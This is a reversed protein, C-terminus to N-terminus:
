RRSASEDVIKKQKRKEKIHDKVEWPYEPYKAQPRDGTKPELSCKTNHYQIRYYGGVHRGGKQSPRQTTFKRRNANQISGM